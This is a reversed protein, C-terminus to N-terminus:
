LHVLLSTKLPIQAKCQYRRFVADAWVANESRRVGLAQTGTSNLEERNYQYLLDYQGGLKGTDIYHTGFRMILDRYMAYSYELPLATLHELFPLSIVLDERDRVKFTSVPLVQHVRM